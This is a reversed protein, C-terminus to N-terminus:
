RSSSPDGLREELCKIYSKIARIAWQHEVCGLVSSRGWNVWHCVDSLFMEDSDWNQLKTTAKRWLTDAAKSCEAFDEKTRAQGLQLRILKAEELLGKRVCVDARIAPTYKPELSAHEVKPKAVPVTTPEPTIVVTVPQLASAIAKEALRQSRRLPPQSM